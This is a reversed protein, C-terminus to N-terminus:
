LAGLSAASGDCGACVGSSGWPDFAAQPAHAVECVGDFIQDAKKETSTDMLFLTQLALRIAMVAAM